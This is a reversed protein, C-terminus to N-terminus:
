SNFWGSGAQILLMTGVGLLLVHVYKTFRDSAFQKALNGGLLIAVVAIPFAAFYYAFVLAAFQYGFCTPDTFTNVVRGVLVIPNIVLFFGQLTARFTDRPWRRFTGYLVVPPGGTNYAGALLGAALGFVGAGKEGQLHLGRPTFLQFLAFGMIVLGLVVKILSEPAQNLWYLGIPVGIVGGVLLGRCHKWDIQNWESILIGVSVTFGLYAVLPTVFQVSLFLSLLPMAVLAHGFGFTAQTLLSSFVVLLVLTLTVDIM